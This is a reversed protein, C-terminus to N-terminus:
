VDEKLIKWVYVAFADGEQNVCFTVRFDIKKNNRLTCAIANGKLRAQEKSPLVFKIAKDLPLEKFLEVWKGRGGKGAETFTGRSVISYETCCNEIM